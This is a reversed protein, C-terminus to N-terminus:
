CNHTRDNPIRPTQSSDQQRSSGWFLNAPPVPERVLRTGKPLGGLCLHLLTHPEGGDAIHVRPVRVVAGLCASVRSVLESGIAGEALLRRGESESLEAILSGDARQVGPANDLVVLMEADLACALHAAFRDADIFLGTGEPGQGLSAIIPVYGQACLVEVLHPNIAQMHGVIGPDQSAGHAQVMKGDIGSLAVAREGSDCAQVVLEQNIHGCLAIRLVELPQVADVQPEAPGHLSVPARDPPGGGQVLVPRAGLTHLWTVDQLILHWSSRVHAGLTIVLIHNELEEPLSTWPGMNTLRAAMKSEKVKREYIAPRRDRAARALMSEVQGGSMITYM